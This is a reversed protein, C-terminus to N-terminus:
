PTATRRDEQIASLTALEDALGEGPRGESGHLAVIEERERRQRGLVNLNPEGIFRGLRLVGVVGFEQQHVM